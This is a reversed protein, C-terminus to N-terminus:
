VQHPLVSYTTIHWIFPDLPCEKASSVTCEFGHIQSLVHPMQLTLVVIPSIEKNAETLFLQANSTIGLDFVPCKYLFYYM